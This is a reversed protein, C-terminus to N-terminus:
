VYILQCELMFVSQKKRSKRRKCSATRATRYFWAVTMEWGPIAKNLNNFRLRKDPWKKM